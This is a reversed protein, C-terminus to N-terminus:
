PEHEEEFVYGLEEARALLPGMLLPKLTLNGLPSPLVM